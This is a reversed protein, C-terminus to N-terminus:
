KKYIAEQYHDLFTIIKELKNKNINSNAIKQKWEAVTMSKERKLSTKHFQKEYKHFQRNLTKDTKNKLYPLRHNIKKGKIKLLRYIAFSLLLTLALIYINTINNALFEIGGDILRDFYFKVLGSGLVGILFDNQMKLYDTYADVGELAEKTEETIVADITPDFTKWGNNYYEVWAHSDMKRSFYYGGSSNYRQCIYGVAYRCPIGKMRLLLIAATAFLQCHGNKKDALFRIAPDEGAPMPEFLDYKHNDILYSHIIAVTEEISKGKTDIQRSISSLEYLDEPNM